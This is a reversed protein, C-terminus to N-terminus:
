LTKHRNMRYGTIVSVTSSVAPDREIYESPIVPGEGHDEGVAHIAPYPYNPFVIVDGTNQVTNAVALNGLDTTHVSLEATVAMLHAEVSQNAQASAGMAFDTTPLVYFHREQPLDDLRASLTLPGSYSGKAGPSDRHWGIGGIDANFGLEQCYIEHFPLLRYHEALSSGSFWNTVVEDARTSGELDRFARYYQVRNHDDSKRTRYLEVLSHGAGRVVAFAYRDPQHLLRYAAEPLGDPDLELVELAPLTM